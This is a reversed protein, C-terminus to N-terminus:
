GGAVHTCALRLAALLPSPPWLGIPLMEQQAPM